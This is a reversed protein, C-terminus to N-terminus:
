PVATLACSLEPPARCTSLLPLAPNRVCFGVEECGLLLKFRALGMMRVPHNKGRGLFHNAHFTGLFPQSPPSLLGLSSLSLACCLKWGSTVAMDWLPALDGPM